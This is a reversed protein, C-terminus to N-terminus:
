DTKKSSNKIFKKESFLYNAIISLSFICLAILFIVFTFAKSGLFALAGIGLLFIPTFPTALIFFAKKNSTVCFLYDYCNLFPLSLLFAILGGLFSFAILLLGENKSPFIFFATLCLIFLTIILSSVTAIKIKSSKTQSQLLLNEIQKSDLEPRNKVLDRKLFTSILKSSIIAGIIFLPLIIKM